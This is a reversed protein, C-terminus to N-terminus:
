KWHLVDAKGTFVLWACRLRHRLATLGGPLYPISRAPIWWVNGANDTTSQSAQGGGYSPDYAWRLIQLVTVEKPYRTVDM